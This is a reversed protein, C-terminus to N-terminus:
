TRIHLYVHIYTHIHTHTIHKALSYLYVFRALHFSNHKATSRSIQLLRLSILLLLLLFLVIFGLCSLFYIVPLFFLYNLFIFSFLFFPIFSPCLSSSLFIFFLRFLFYLMTFRHFSSRWFACVYAYVRVYVCMEPLKLPGGGGGGRGRGRGGGEMMMILSCYM